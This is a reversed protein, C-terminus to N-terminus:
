KHDINQSLPLLQITLLSVLVSLSLSPSLSLFLLPLHLAAFVVIEVLSCIRFKAVCYAHTQSEEISQLVLSPAAKCEEIM